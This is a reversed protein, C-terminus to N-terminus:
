WRAKEERVDCHVFQTYLGIGGNCFHSILEAKEKIEKPTAFSSRVDVAKGLMHQSDACGHVEKNHAACRFASTIILMPFYLSLRTVSDILNEDILTKDCEPRACKCDFDVSDFEDSVKVSEGKKFERIM